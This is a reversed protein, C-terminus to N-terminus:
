RLDRPVCLGAHQGSNVTHEVLIGIRDGCNGLAEVGDSVRVKGVKSRQSVDVDVAHCLPNHILPARLSWPSVGARRRFIWSHSFPTRSPPAVTSLTASSSLIRLRAIMRLSMVPSSMYLLPLYRYRPASIFSMTWLPWAQGFSRWKGLGPFDVEVLSVDPLRDM